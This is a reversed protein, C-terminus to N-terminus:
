QVFWSKENGGRADGDPQGPQLVDANEVPGVAGQEYRLVDAQRQRASLAFQNGACRRAGSWHAREGRAFLKKGRLSNIGRLDPEVPHHQERKPQRKPQNGEHAQKQRRALVVNPRM